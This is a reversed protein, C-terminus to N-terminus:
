ITVVDSITSDASTVINSVIGDECEIEPLTHNPRSVLRTASNVTSYMARITAWEPDHVDSKRHDIHLILKDGYM